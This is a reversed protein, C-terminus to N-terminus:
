KTWQKGAFPLSFLGVNVPLPANHTAQQLSLLVVYLPAQHGGACLTVRARRNSVEWVYNLWITTLRLTIRLTKKM